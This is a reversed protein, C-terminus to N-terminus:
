QYRPLQEVIQTRVNHMIIIIIIYIQYLSRILQAM